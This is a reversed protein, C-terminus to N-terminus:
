WTRNVVERKREIECGLLGDQLLGELVVEENKKKLGEIKFLM